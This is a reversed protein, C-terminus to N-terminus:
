GASRTEFRERLWAREGERLFGSGAVVLPFATVLALKTLLAPVLASPALRSLGFCAAAAVSIRTLRGTEFPMPYLRRSIMFGLGAMVSYSAVTAWAAGLMGLRPILALNCAINTAAAAASIVPYYRSAKQIGIGISTLLYVGHLLYALVVVPVVPAAARFAPEFPTLVVLLEGSFVAVGLGVLCFAFWAFTVVRALTLRADPRSIQSYVFPGWAPEFASLAFKVGAGVLYGVHYIGVSARPLFLDLLKRDALNQLQVLLGHPVKPMGFSLVPRLLGWSFSPEAHKLLTPMLAATFVVTAILDSVLVGTVGLGAVVLVVKLVINIGHRLASLLSFRGPRDQIRLLNLPVFALMGVALDAAVLVVFLPPSAEGLLASTLPRRSFAIAVFLAAGSVTAFAAVSGALRRTIEPGVDYYVRFFGADLGLRFAIKAVGGFLALIALDGYEEPGMYATFVPILLVSTVQSFVDAAGYIASQQILKRLHSVLPPSTRDDESV